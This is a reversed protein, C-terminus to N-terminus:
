REESLIELAERVAPLVEEIAVPAYRWDYPSMIMGRAGWRDLRKANAVVNKAYEAGVWYREDLMWQSGSSVFYTWLLRSHTHNPFASELAAYVAECHENGRKEPIAAPHFSTWLDTAYNAFLSQRWGVIHVAQEETCGMGTPMLREGGAPMAYFFCIDEDDASCRYLLEFMFGLELYFGEEDLPNLWCEPTHWNLEVNGRCFTGPVWSPPMCYTALMVKLGAERCEDIYSRIYDWNFEGKEPEVQHWSVYSEALVTKIGADRLHKKDELSIPAVKQDIVILREDEDLFM